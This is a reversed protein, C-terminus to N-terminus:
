AMRRRLYLQIRKTIDRRVGLAVIGDTGLRQLQLLNTIGAAELKRITQVGVGGGTLRKMDRLAPGLPSCYKLKEQLDYVQHRMNGLM